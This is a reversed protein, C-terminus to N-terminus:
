KSKLFGVSCTEFIHVLSSGLGRPIKMVTDQFAPDSFMKKELSRQDDTLIKSKPSFIVKRGMIETSKLLNKPVGLGEVKYKQQFIVRLLHQTSGHTQFVNSVIKLHEERSISPRCITKASIWISSEKDSYHAVNFLLVPPFANSALAGVWVAACAELCKMPLHAM